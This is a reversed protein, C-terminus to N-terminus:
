KFIIFNDALICITLMTFYLCWLWWVICTWHLKPLTELAKISTLPLLLLCFAFIKKSARQLLMTSMLNQDFFHWEESCFTDIFREILWFAVLRYKRTILLDTGDNHYWLGLVIQTSHIYYVSLKFGTIKELRQSPLTYLHAM